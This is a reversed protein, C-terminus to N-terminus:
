ITLEKFHQLNDIWFKNIKFWNNINKGSFSFEKHIKMNMYSDDLLILAKIEYYGTTLLPSYFGKNDGILNIIEQKAQDYATEYPYIFTHIKNCYFSEKNQYKLNKIPGNNISYYFNIEYGVISFSKESHLTLLNKIPEDTLDLESSTLFEFPTSIKQTVQNNVFQYSQNIDFKGADNQETYNTFYFGVQDHINEYENIFTNIIKEDSIGIDSLAETNAKFSLDVPIFHHTLKQKLYESNSVDLIVQCQYHSAEKKNIVYDPSVKDGVQNLTINEVKGVSTNVDLLLANSPLFLNQDLYINFNLIWRSLGLNIDGDFGGLFIFKNDNVPNYQVPKIYYNSFSQSIM